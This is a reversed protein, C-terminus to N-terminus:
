LYSAEFESFYVDGHTDGKHIVKSLTAIGLSELKSSLQTSSVEIKQGPVIRPNLFSKGKITNKDKSPSGILGTDPTIKVLLERNGQKTDTIQSMNNQVSFKFGHPELIKELLTVTKGAYSYGRPYLTAPPYNITGRELNLSKLCEDILDNSNSGKALTLNLSALQINIFGDACTLISIIDTDYRKHTVDTIDGIFLLQECGQYGASLEIVTDEKELYNRSEQKLNFLTIKGKNTNTDDTKDITFQTRLRHTFGTRSGYKQYVLASVSRHFLESM